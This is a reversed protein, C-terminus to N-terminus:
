SNKKSVADALMSAGMLSLGSGVGFGVRSGFNLRNFSKKFKKAREMQEKTAYIRNSARDNGIGSLFSTENVGDIDGYKKKLRKQMALSGYLSAATLGIGGATLLGGTKGDSAATKEFAYDVINNLLATKEFTYIILNNLLNM